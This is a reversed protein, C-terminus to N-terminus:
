KGSNAWVPIYLEDTGQHSPLLVYGFGKLDVIVLVSGIDRGAHRASAPLVERTLSEANVLLTQWHKEPTCKEYLKELDM